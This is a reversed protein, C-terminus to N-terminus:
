LEGCLTLILRTKHELAQIWGGKTPRLNCRSKLEANILRIELPLSVGLFTSPDPLPPRPPSHSEAGPEPLNPRRVQGHQTVKLRSGLPLASEGRWGHGEGRQWTPFLRQIGVAWNLLFYIEVSCIFTLLILNLYNQTLSLFDM